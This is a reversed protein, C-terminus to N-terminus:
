CFLRSFTGSFISWALALLIVNAVVPVGVIWWSYSARLEPDPSSSLGPNPRLSATRQDAPDASAVRVPTESQAPSNQGPATDITGEAIPTTEPAAEDDGSDSDADVLTLRQIDDGQDGTEPQQFPVQVGPFDPENYSTAIPQAYPDNRLAQDADTAQDDAVDWELVPRKVVQAQSVPNVPRTSTKVAQDAEQDASGPLAEGSGDGSGEKGGGEKGKEKELEDLQKDFDDDMSEESDQELGSEVEFFLLARRVSQPDVKRLEEIKQESEPLPCARLYNVIPVRVWKSDDDAQKFMEVLKDMVSWDEWRALDPIVLDAIDPRDLLLRLAKLIRPVPIIDSETGHFRLAAVAAYTDVYEANKNRLFQDEILKVGKPGALTLYCASLADLAARERKDDSTILKELLPLDAETGCVGLMTYYLRKRNITVEPDQIWELLQQRDMEGKISKVDSYPARAFEDYADYALLSEPDELYDLFFALRKPGQEPLEQLELIYKRSRETMKVPTSWSLQDTIVGMVLCEQGATFSPPVITTFKKGEGVFDEGKIVKTIELNMLLDLTPTDESGAADKAPGLVKAFVVADTTLMEETLTQKVASCFPCVMAEVVPRGLLLGLTLVFGALMLALKGVLTRQGSLWPSPTRNKLNARM